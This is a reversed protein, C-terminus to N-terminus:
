RLLSPSLAPAKRVGARAPSRPRDCHKAAPSPIRGRWGLAPPSRIRRLRPLASPFNHAEAADTYRRLRKRQAPFSPLEPRALKERSGLSPFGKRARGGGRPAAELAQGARTPLPPPHTSLRGALRPFSRPGRKRSLFPSPHLRRHSQSRWPLAPTRKGRPAARSGTLSLRRRPGRARLHKSRDGAPRGAHAPTSSDSGSPGFLQASVGPEIKKKLHAARLLNGSGKGPDARPSTSEPSWVLWGSWARPPAGDRRAEPRASNSSSKFGGRRKARAALPM